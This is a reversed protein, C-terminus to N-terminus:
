LYVTRFGWTQLTEDKIRNSFAYQLKYQKRKEIAYGKKSDHIAEIDSEAPEHKSILAEEVQYGLERLLFLTNFIYYRKEVYNVQYAPNNERKLTLQILRDCFANLFQQMDIWQEEPLLEIVEIQYGIFLKKLGIEELMIKVEARARIVNKKYHNYYYDNRTINNSALIKDIEFDVDDYEQQSPSSIEDNLHIFFPVKSKKIKNQKELYKFSNSVVDRNRRTITEKFTSVVKAIESKWYMNKFIKTHKIEELERNSTLGFLTAWQNLSHAKGDNIEKVCLAFHIYDKMLLDEQTLKKGNNIRNSPIPNAKEYLNTIEYMVPQGKKKKLRNWSECISEVKKIFSDYTGNQKLYGKELFHPNNLESGSYGYAMTLEILEKEALLLKEKQM